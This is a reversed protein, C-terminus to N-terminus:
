YSINIQLNGMIENFWVEDKDKDTSSDAEKFLTEVSNAGDINKSGFFLSIDEPKEVKEAIKEYSKRAHYVALELQDFFAGLDNQFYEPSPINVEISM